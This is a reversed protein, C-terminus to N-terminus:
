LTHFRIPRLPVTTGRESRQDYPRQKAVLQTKGESAQEVEARTKGSGAAMDYILKPPCTGQHELQAAVLPAIGAEDPTAGTYAQTERIFGDTSAAVQINYGFKIDEEDNGHQRYTAEPDTASGIRLSTEPDSRREQATRLHIHAEPPNDSGAPLPETSIIVEDHIIKGLYGVWLRVEPYAQSSCNQLTTTFRQQLEHAALIVTELRQRREVKSLCFAPKEKPAGFLEHWAFRSVTPTLLDPMSQVAEALLCRVTHRLRTTLEEEAANAILAYTDGVQNLKHSNPFLADIQKLITDSYIRPHHDRVWFEFRELTCHDPVDGFASLGVFWRVVMDSYLRQELERLSLTYLYGVLLSRVLVSVSYTPRRGPGDQHRYAACATEIPQFDLHRALKVLLHNHCRELLSAFFCESFFETLLSWYLMVFTILIQPLIPM